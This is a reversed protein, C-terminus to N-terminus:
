KMVSSPSQFHFISCNLHSWFWDGELSECLPNGTSKVLLGQEDVEIIDNHDKWVECTMDTM